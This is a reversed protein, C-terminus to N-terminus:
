FSYADRDTLGPIIGSRAAEEGFMADASQAGEHSNIEYRQAKEDSSSEEEESSEDLNIKKEEDEM